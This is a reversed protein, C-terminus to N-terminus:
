LLLAVFALISLSSTSFHLRPPPTVKIVRRSRPNGPGVEGEDEGLISAPHSTRDLILFPRVEHAFRRRWRESALRNRKAGAREHRAHQRLEPVVRNTMIIRNLRAFASAVDGQSVWASRGTSLVRILSFDVVYRRTYSVMMPVRPSQYSPWWHPKERRGYSKRPSKYQQSRMKLLTKSSM